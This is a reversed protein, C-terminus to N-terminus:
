GVVLLFRVVVVRGEKLAERFMAARGGLNKGDCTASKWKRREMKENAVIEEKGRSIRNGGGLRRIGLAARSWTTRHGMLM